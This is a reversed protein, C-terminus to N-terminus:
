KTTFEFVGDWDQEPPTILFADIREQYLEIFRAYFGDNLDALQNLLLQAQPWDQQYYVNFFDNLLTVKVQDADSADEISALPEFIKIPETKGKVRVKDLPRYIFEPAALRTTESVVINSGYFKSLGELRAGLNVADGMVTYAMRYASGMNGVAMMGTNIGVGIKISPFGESLLQKNLTMVKQQMDLASLVSKYAHKPQEVPAGWFAMIADGMYKDVTGLNQYIAETMPTLIKNMLLTLDQPAVKESITTFGRVDSFLVSLEKSQGDLSIAEPNKAMEDVLEPPVYQGFLRTIDRKSKSEVFFGWSMHFIFFVLCMLIPSALPFMLAQSWLWFNVQIYAFILVGSLLLTKFPSLFHPVILLILGLILYIFFMAAILYSPMRATNQDLIGAIINAHVEVGPMSEDVPTSRLDLLGPASTGLLIIKDKLRDMPINKELIDVISIYPFSGEPGRFPITVAGTHDTSIVRHGLQVSEIALTPGQQYMQIDLPPNGLAQQAVSLALSPYLLGQYSQLLPVRRFNGDSDVVPNDFFGTGAAAAHFEPRNATYGSPKPLQLQMHTAGDLEAIAKPLTNLRNPSNAQFLIGATVARGMLSQAFVQDQLAEFDLAQKTDSSLTSATKLEQQLSIFREGAAEAFVMDFGLTRVKYHDFLTDVLEALHHRNWPWQGYANLSKEDIDAIIIRDDIGMPLTTRLRMDSAMGDLRDLVPLPLVHFGHLVFTLIIATGILWKASARIAQRM